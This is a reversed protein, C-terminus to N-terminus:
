SLHGRQIQATNMPLSPVKPMAVAIVKRKSLCGSATTTSSASKVLVSAAPSATRSTVAAPIRGTISIMSLKVM